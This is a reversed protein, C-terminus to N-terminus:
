QSVSQSVSQYAVNTENEHVYKHPGYMSGVSGKKYYITSATTGSHNDGSWAGCAARACLSLQPNHTKVHALRAKQKETGTHYKRSGRVFVTQLGIIGCWVM